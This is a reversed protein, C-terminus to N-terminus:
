GGTAALREFLEEHATVMREWTFRSAAERAAAGLAARLAPDAGLERLRSAIQEATPEM